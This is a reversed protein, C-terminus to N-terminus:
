PGECNFGQNKDEKKKMKTLSNKINYTDMERVTCLFVSM